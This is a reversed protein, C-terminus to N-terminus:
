NKVLVFIQQRKGNIRKTKTEYGEYSCIYRSFSVKSVAKLGSDYCWQSYDTYVEAVLEGDIDTTKLYGIIPNNEEKFKDLEDQVGAPETFKKREIVDLMGDLALQAMYELAEPALLKDIITPDYDPDQSSFKARLPVICIRRLFGDSTDNFRPIDNASFILKSYNKLDFPDKGKREVSLPEGTVLKKLVSTENIYAKSIDDGINALKGFIEATKFREDVERIDLSSVNDNGLMHRLMTLLTSKGNSGKGKLIFFKGIENRRYLTYGFMEEILSRIKRDKTSIKDLMHDVAESYSEENYRVPLKNTSIIKPSHPMLIDDVYDYIGNAFVIYRTDSFQKVPAKLKIYALVEQRNNRKLTPIEKIMFREIHDEGLVYVGADYIHLNNQISIINYENILYDGFKDHLFQKGEYFSQKKFAEDRLITKLERPKLPKVALYENIIKITEAIQEKNLSNRQLKLIYNYFTQNRNGESIGNLGEGSDEDSKQKRLPLLWAPLDTLEDAETILERKDGDIKIPDATWKSGIKYDTLMDINSFWKIKNSNISSNKFYFHIGNPTERSIVPIEKDELIDLLLEAQDIDDIDVMVVDDKLIGVFSDSKRVTEFALFKAKDKPKGAHKGNGRLFGKYLLDNVTQESM